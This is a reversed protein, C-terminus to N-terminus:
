VHGVAQCRGGGRMAGVGGEGPVGGRVSTGGGGGPRGEGSSVVHTNRMEERSQNERCSTVKDEWRVGKEKVTGRIVRM